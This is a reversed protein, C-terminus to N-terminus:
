RVVDSGSDSAADDDEDDRPANKRKTAQAAPVASLQPNPMARSIHAPPRHTNPYRQQVNKTALAPTHVHFDQTVHGDRPRWGMAEVQVGCRGAPPHASRSTTTVKTM